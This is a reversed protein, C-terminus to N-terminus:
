RLGARKPSGPEFVCAVWFTQPGRTRYIPTHAPCVGVLPLAEAVFRDGLAVRRVDGLKFVAGLRAKGDDLGEAKGFLGGGGDRGLAQLGDGGDESLLDSAVFPPGHM